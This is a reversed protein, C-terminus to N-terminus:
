KWKRGSDEGRLGQDESRLQDNRNRVIDWSEVNFPPAFDVTGCSTEIYTQVFRDFTAHVIFLLRSILKLGWHDCNAVGSRTIHVLSVLSPSSSHQTVSMDEPGVARLSASCVLVMMAVTRFRVKNAVSQKFRGVTSADWSVEYVDGSRREESV